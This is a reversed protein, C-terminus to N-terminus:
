SAWDEEVDIPLSYIRLLRHDLLGGLLFVTGLYASGVGFDAFLRAAPVVGFLPLVTAAVLTAVAMAFYHWRFRGGFHWWVTLGAAFLLGTLSVPPSVLLDTVLCAFLVVAAALVLLVFVTLGQSRGSGLGQMDGVCNGYASTHLYSLQMLFCCLLLVAVATYEKLEWLGFHAGSNLLWLGGLPVMRYGQLCFHYRASLDLREWVSRPLRFFERVQEGVRASVNRLRM